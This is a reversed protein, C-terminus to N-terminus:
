IREESEFDKSIIGFKFWAPIRYDTSFFKRKLIDIKQAHGEKSHGHEQVV